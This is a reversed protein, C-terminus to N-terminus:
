KVEKLLARLDNNLSESLKIEETVSNSRKAVEKRKNVDKLSITWEIKTAIKTVDGIILYDCLLPSTAINFAQNDDLNTGLNRKLIEANITAKDIFRFTQALAMAANHVEDQCRQGLKLNTAEINKERFPFIAILKKLEGTPLLQPGYERNLEDIVLETLDLDSTAYYVGEKLDLVMAFGEQQAIKSVAENIKKLLPAMLEDNKQEIKGGPGFVDKLFQNYSITQAEIENLKRLRAEESLLLKQAELESKLNEITQQLSSASDRSSSVVENFEASASATAQYEDFIRQSDIFGIKTEKAWTLM